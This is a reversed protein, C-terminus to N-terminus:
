VRAAYQVNPLDLRFSAGKILEIYLIRWARIQDSDIRRHVLRKLKFGHSLM